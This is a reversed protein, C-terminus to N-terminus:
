ARVHWQMSYHIMISCPHKKERSDKPLCIIQPSIYIILLSKLYLGKNPSQKKVPGTGTNTARLKCKQHQQKQTNEKRKKNNYKQLTEGKKRESSRRQEAKIHIYKIYTNM